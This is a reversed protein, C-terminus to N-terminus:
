HDSCGQDTSVLGWPHGRDLGLVSSESVMVEDGDFFDGSISTRRGEARGQVDFPNERNEGQVALLHRHTAVRM